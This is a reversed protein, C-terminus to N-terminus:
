RNIANTSPYEFLGGSAGVTHKITRLYVYVSSGIVRTLHYKVSKVAAEWLGGHHPALPTIFTWEIQRAQSDERLEGCIEIWRALREMLEHYAGVFTTGNDSRMKRIRGKRAQMRDLADLFAKSTLDSVLELHVAKTVLCVFVAIYAKLCIPADRGQWAKIKIPGAFDVGCNEFPKAQQVRDSPLDAMMQETSASNYRYCTVCHRVCQKVANQLRPIWYRERLHHMTMQTGGHLTQEHALRILRQTLTASAPLIIPHKQDYSLTGSELRGRARMLKKEDLFPSMALLKSTRNIDEGQSLIAYEQAYAEQHTCRLWYNLAEEREEVSPTEVRKPTSVPEASATAQRDNDAEAAQRRAARTQVVSIDATVRERCRNCFRLVYATIRKVKELNNFKEILPLDGCEIAFVTAVVSEQQYESLAESEAKDWRSVQENLRPTFDNHLYTPGHWWMKHKILVDVTAGRSLVDAPNERTTVHHWNTVDTNAQIEAM